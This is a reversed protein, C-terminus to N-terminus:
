DADAGLDTFLRAHAPSLLREFAGLTRRLRRPSAETTALARDVFRVHARFASPDDRDLSDLCFSWLEELRYADEGLETRLPNPATPASWSAAAGTTYTLADAGVRLVRIAAEPAAIGEVRMAETLQRFSETLHWSCMGRSTLVGRLWRAYSAFVGDDGAHLASLVYKVHYESDQEAHRRGREGFRAMWFPDAYMAEICRRALVVRKSGLEEILSPGSSSM